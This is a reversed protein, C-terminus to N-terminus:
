CKCMGQCVRQRDLVPSPSSEGLKGSSIHHKLGAKREHQLEDHQGRPSAPLSMGKHTDLHAGPPPCVRHFFKDVRHMRGFWQQRFGAIQGRLEERCM